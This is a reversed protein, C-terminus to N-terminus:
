CAMGQLIEIKFEELQQLPPDWGREELARVLLALQLSPQPHGKERLGVCVSSLVRMINDHHQQTTPLQSPGHVSM